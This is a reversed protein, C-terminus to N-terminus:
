LLLMGHKRQREEQDRNILYLLRAEKGSKEENADGLEEEGNGMKMSKKVVVRGAWLVNSLQM